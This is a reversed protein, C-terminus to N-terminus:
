VSNGTQQPVDCLNGPGTSHPTGSLVNWTREPFSLTEWDMDFSPPHRGTGKHHEPSWVYTEGLMEHNIEGRVAEADEVLM